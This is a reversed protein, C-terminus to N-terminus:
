TVNITHARQATVGPPSVWVMFDHIHPHGSWRRGVPDLWGCLQQLSLVRMIPIEFSIYIPEVHYAWAAYYYDHMM